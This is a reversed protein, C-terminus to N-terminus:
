PSWTQLRGCLGHARHGSAATRSAVAGQWLHPARGAALDALVAHSGARQDLVGTACIEQWRSVRGAVV